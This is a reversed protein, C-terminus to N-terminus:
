VAAPHLRGKVANRVPVEPHVSLCGELRLQSPTKYVQKKAEPFITFVFKKKNISGEGEPDFLQFLELVRTKSLGINMELFMDMFEKWDLSGGGDGDFLDFLNPLDVASYGNELLRNRTDQALLIRHRNTWVDRFTDGIIGLPVATYLTTLIILMGTIIKGGSTWAVRDGYGTTTMTIVTMWLAQPLSALNERPEVLFFLAAFFLGILAYIFLLVPLAEFALVFAQLLLRFKRFRRLLKLLRTLPVAGLLLSWTVTEYDRERVLVFGTIIRIILPPITNLMDNVNLWNSLFQVRNPCVMLRVLFELLFMSDITTETIAATLGSLVPPDTSQLLCLLVSVLIVPTMATAYIRAATSSEPEEFFHWTAQSLKSRRRQRSEFWNSLHEKQVQVTSQPEMGGTPFCPMWSALLMKLKQFRTLEFSVASETCRVDLGEATSNRRFTWYRSQSTHAAVKPSRNSSPSIPTASMKAQMDASTMSSQLNCESPTRVQAHKVSTSHIVLGSIHENLDDKDTADIPDTDGKRPLIFDDTKSAQMYCGHELSIRDLKEVLEDMRQMLVRHLWDLPVVIVGKDRKLTDLEAWPSAAM